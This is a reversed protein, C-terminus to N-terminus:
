PREFGQTVVASITGSAVIGYLLQSGSLRRFQVCGQPLLPRGTTATVSTAFGIRMTVATDTNCVEVFQSTVATLLTASSTVTVAVPNNFTFSQARAPCVLLFAALAALRIRM